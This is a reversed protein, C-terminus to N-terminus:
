MLSRLVSLLSSLGVFFMMAGRTGNSNPPIGANANTGPSLGPTPEAEPEPEAEPTPTPSPTPTPTPTSHPYVYANNTACDRISGCERKVTCGGSPCQPGEVTITIKCPTADGPQCGPSVSVSWSHPLAEFTKKNYQLDSVEYTPYHSQAQLGGSIWKWSIMPEFFLLRCDHSGVITVPTKWEDNTESQDGYHVGSRLIASSTDVCFDLTKDVKTSSGIDGIKASVPMNDKILNFYPANDPEDYADTCVPLNPNATTGIHCMNMAALEAEPVYYLHFDYHSEGHCITIDKHGCPQWDVSAFQIGTKAKIEDSVPRPYFRPMWYPQGDAAVEQSSGSCRPDDVPNGGTVGNVVVAESSDHEWEFVVKYFDPQSPTDLYVNWDKVLEASESLALTALAIKFM